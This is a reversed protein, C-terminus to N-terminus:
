WITMKSFITIVSCRDIGLKLVLYLENNSDNAEIILDTNIILVTSICWAVLDSNM